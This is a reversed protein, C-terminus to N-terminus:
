DDSSEVGERERQAALRGEAYRLPDFVGDVEGLHKDPLTVEDIPRPTYPRDVHDHDSPASLAEYPRWPVWEEGSETALSDRHEQCLTRVDYGRARSLRGDRGCVECTAASEAEAQEIRAAYAVRIDRDSTEPYTTYDLRGSCVRMWVRTHEPYIALLDAELRAFLARWGAPVTM